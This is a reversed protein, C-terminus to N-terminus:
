LGMQLHRRVERDKLDPHGGGRLADRMEGRHPEGDCRPGGYSSSLSTRAPLPTTRARRTTAARASRGKSSRSSARARRPRLLRWASFM